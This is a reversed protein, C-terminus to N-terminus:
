VKIIGNSVLWQIGQIFEDDSIQGDAWWGANKKIWSPISQLSVSSEQTKPITIIGNQIMYQIGKVFEDDSISGDHWWKANNKIWPPILSQNSKVQPKNSFMNTGLLTYEIKMTPNTELITPNFQKLNLLVGTNKDIIVDLSYTKNTQSSVLINRTTGNFSMNQETAITPDYKIPTPLIFIFNSISDDPRTVMQNRVDFLDEESATTGNSLVISTRMKITNNDQYNEFQYTAIFDTGLSSISYKLYNGPLVCVQDQKCSTISIEQNQTITNQLASIESQPPNTPIKYSTPGQGFIEMVPIQKGSPSTVITSYAPCSKTSNTKECSNVLAQIYHVWNVSVTDPAGYWHLAFHSLEHSLVWAGTWSEQDYDCACVLISQRGTGSIQYLGYFGQQVLLRQGVDADMIVIPLAFASLGNFYQQLKAEPICLAGELDHPIDYLTLYEDALVKYYKLSSFESDDCSNKETIYFVAYSLPQNAGFNEAKLKQFQQAFDTVNNSDVTQGLATLPTLVLMLFITLSAVKIKWM